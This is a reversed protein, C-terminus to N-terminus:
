SYINIFVFNTPFGECLHPCCTSDSSIRGNDLDSCHAITDSYSAAGNKHQSSGEISSHSHPACMVVYM